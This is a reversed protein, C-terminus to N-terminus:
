RTRRPRISNTRCSSMNLWTYNFRLKSRSNRWHIQALLEDQTLRKVKFLFHLCFSSEGSCSSAGDLSAETQGRKESRTLLFKHWTFKRGPSHLQAELTCSKSFIGLLLFNRRWTSVEKNESMTKNERRTHLKPKM